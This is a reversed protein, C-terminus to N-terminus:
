YCVVPVYLIQKTVVQLNQFHKDRSAFVVSTVNRTPFNHEERSPSLFCRVVMVM